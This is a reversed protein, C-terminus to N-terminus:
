VAVLLLHQIFPVNCPNAVNLPRVHNTDCYADIINSTPLFSDISDDGSTRLKAAVECMLVLLLDVLVMVRLLVAAHM